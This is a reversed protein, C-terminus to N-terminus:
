FRYGVMLDGQFIVENMYDNNTITRGLGGILQLVFGQRNIWKGGISLGMSLANFREEKVNINGPTGDWSVGKGTSYGMFAQTFFGSTGYERNRNFYFRYYPTFSFDFVLADNLDIVMNAGLSGYNSLVREYELDLIPGLILKLAGVKLENKREVITKGSIDAESTSQAQVSYGSIIGAILFLILIRKKM